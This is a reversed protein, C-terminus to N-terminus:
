CFQIRNLWCISNYACKLEYLSTLWRYYHGSDFCYESEVNKQETAATTRSLPLFLLHYVCSLLDIQSAHIHRRVVGLSSWGDVEPMIVLTQLCSSLESACVFLFHHLTSPFCFHWVCVGEAGEARQQQLFARHHQSIIKTDTTDTKGNQGNFKGGWM